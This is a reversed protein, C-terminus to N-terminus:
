KNKASADFAMLEGLTITIRKTRVFSLTLALIANLARLSDTCICFKVSRQSVFTVAHYIRIAAVIFMSCYDNLLGGIIEKIDKVVACPVTNNM